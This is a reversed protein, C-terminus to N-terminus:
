RETNEQLDQPLRIGIDIFTLGLLELGLIPL